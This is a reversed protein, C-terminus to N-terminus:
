FKLVTALLVVFSVVIFFLSGELFRPIWLANAFRINEFYSLSNFYSILGPFRATWDFDNDPILFSILRDIPNQSREQEQKSLEITTKKTLQLEM